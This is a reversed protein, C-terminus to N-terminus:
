GHVFNVTKPTIKSDSEVDESRANFGAAHFGSCLISNCIHKKGKEYFSSVQLMDKYIKEYTVFFRTNGDFAAKMERNLRAEEWERLKRAKRKSISM